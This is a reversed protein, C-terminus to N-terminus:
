NFCKYEQAKFLIQKRASSAEVSSANLFNMKAEAVSVSDGTKYSNMIKGQSLLNVVTTGADKELNTFSLSCDNNRTHLLRFLRGNQEITNKRAAESYTSSYEYNDDDLINQARLAEHIFFIQDVEDVSNLKKDWEALTKDDSSCDLRIIRSNSKFVYALKNQTHLTPLQEDTACLTLVELKTITKLSKYNFNLEAKAADSMLSIEDMLLLLKNKVKAELPHGGGEGSGAFAHLSITLLLPVLKKIKM